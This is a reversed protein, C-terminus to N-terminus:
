NFEPLYSLVVILNLDTLVIQISNTIIKDYMSRLIIKETAEQLAGTIYM